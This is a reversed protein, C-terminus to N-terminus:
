KNLWHRRCVDGWYTDHVCKKWKAPFLLWRHRSQLMSSPCRAGLSHLARLCPSSTTVLCSPFCAGGVTNTPNTCIISDQTWLSVSLLITYKALTIYFESHYFNDRKRRKYSEAGRKEMGRRRKDTKILKIGMWITQKPLFFSQTVGQLIIKEM